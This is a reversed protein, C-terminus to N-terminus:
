LFVGPLFSASFAFILNESFVKNNSSFSYVILWNQLSYIVSNNGTIALFQGMSWWIVQQGGKKLM